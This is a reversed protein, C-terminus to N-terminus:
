RRRRGRQHPVAGSARQVPVTCSRAWPSSCRATTTADVAVTGHLDLQEVRRVADRGALRGHDVVAGPDDARRRDGDVSDARECSATACRRRTSARAVVCAAVGLGDPDHEALQGGLAQRVQGLQGAAPDRRRMVPRASATTASSPASRCGAPQRSVSAGPRRGGAPGCGARGPGRRARPAPAPSSPRRELDLDGPRPREGRRDLPRAAVLHEGVVAGAALQRLREGLPQAVVDGVHAAPHRRRGAPRGPRRAPAPRRAPRARDRGRGAEAPVAGDCGGSADSASPQTSAATASAPASGHTCAHAGPVGSSRSRPRRRGRAERDVQVHEGGGVVVASASASLRPLRDGEADDRGSAGASRGVSAWTASRTCRQSSM